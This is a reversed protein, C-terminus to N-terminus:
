EEEDSYADELIAPLSAYFAETFEEPIEVIVGEVHLHDGHSHAQPRVTAGCLVFFPALSYYDLGYFEHPDIGTDQLLKWLRDDYQSDGQTIFGLQIM